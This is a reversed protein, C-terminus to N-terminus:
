TCNEFSTIYNILDSITLCYTMSKSDKRIHDKLLRFLRFLIDLLNNLLFNCLHIDDIICSSSKIRFSRDLYDSIKLSSSM